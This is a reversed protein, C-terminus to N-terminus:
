VLAAITVAACAWLVILVPLILMQIAADRPALKGTHTMIGKSEFQGTTLPRTTNADVANSKLRTWIAPVGFGAVIFFAFIAMPIVLGPNGLGAAMVALFGLYLGATAVYLGTPLEFNRDVEIQHRPAIAPADVIRAEGRAIIDQVQKSM